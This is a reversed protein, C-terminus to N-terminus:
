RCLSGPSLKSAFRRCDAMARAVSYVRVQVRDITVTEVDQNFTAGLRLYRIAVGPEKPKRVSRPIAMWVEPTAEHAGHLALASTLCIIGQPVKKTAIALPSYRWGQLGFVAPAVKQVM